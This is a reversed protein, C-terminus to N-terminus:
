QAGGGRDLRADHGELRILGKADGPLSSTPRITPPGINRPPRGTPREGGAHARRLPTTSPHIPNISEASRAPWPGEDGSGGGGGGGGGGVVVVVVVDVGLGSGGRLDSFYLPWTRPLFAFM